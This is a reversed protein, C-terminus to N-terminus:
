SDLHASEIVEYNANSKIGYTVFSHTHLTDGMGRKVGKLLAGNTIGTAAFLCNNSRVLENLTLTKEPTDIGMNLCRNIETNNSPILKGQFDGGLCKQAVAAIVGEPAGGTGILMDVDSESISTLIAGIIDVDSFLRVNAGAEITEKILHHHRPRDQIMVTLQDMNKETAKAVSVLNDLLPADLDICGKAEPGVAIKKMYIDPAHLLTAAESVAIVTLANNQGSAILNTGEIPDVAVDIKPGIGTGVKEGINLMPADDMEGEGIIVKGDINILNLQHRMAETAARDAEIKNLKGVWPFAAIAASQTVELFDLIFPRGFTSLRNKM